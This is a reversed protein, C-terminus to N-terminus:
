DSNVRGRRLSVLLLQVCPNRHIEKRELAAISQEVPRSHTFVIEYASELAQVDSDSYGARHLGVKNVGRVQDAGDIKLFPPTDYHIKSFASIYSCRALTVFHFIAAGAMVAVHDECVNNGAVIVSNSLTVHNAITTDHGVFANVMFLNNDGVRTVGAGKATGPHVVVGERFTNNDGIVLEAPEGKYTKDQPDAGLVSNPFFTNNNGITTRGLLTVSNLLRCGAGIRVDPGIVCFPGVDVDAPLKASPDVSALPSIPM